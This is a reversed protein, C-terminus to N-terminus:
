ETREVPISGVPDSTAPDRCLENIEVRGDVTHDEDAGGLAAHVRIQHVLVQLLEASEGIGGTAVHHTRQDLADVRRVGAEVDTVALRPLQGVQHLLLLGIQHDKVVLEARILALVQFLQHADTSRESSMRSMKAVRAFDFSARMCTSSAWSWYRRGRSRRIHLWRERMRPPM